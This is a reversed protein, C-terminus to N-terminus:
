KKAYVIKKTGGECTGVQKKDSAQDLPLVELVHDKVGKADLKAAIESKLEECPKGAALVQGTAAAALVFLVVHKM